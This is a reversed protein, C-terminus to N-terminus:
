VVYRDLLHQALVNEQPTGDGSLLLLVLPITRQRQGLEGHEGVHLQLLAQHTM